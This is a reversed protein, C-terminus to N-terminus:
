AAFSFADISCTNVEEFERSSRPSQNVPRGPGAITPRPTAVLATRGWHTPQVLSINIM